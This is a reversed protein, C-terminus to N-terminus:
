SYLLRSGVTGQDKNVESVSFIEAVWENSYGEYARNDWQLESM